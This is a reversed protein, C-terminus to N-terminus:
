RVRRMLFAAVFAFLIIPLSAGVIPPVQYVLSFPGFLQNLLYFGFGVVSGTVVRVGMSVSRLPGFVFPVALFIMVLTALPQLIRQWFALSFNASSNGNAKEYHIYRYLAPLTMTQTANKSVGLVKADIVVPWKLKKFKTKVVGKDTFSSEVGNYLWWQYGIRTAHNAEVIRKLRFKKDVDYQIVGYLKSSSVIDNLHIFSKQYRYWVGEKSAVTQGQTEASLKKIDALQQTKPAIVEGILTIIVILLLATLLVIKVIDFVSFGAARMVVLESNSALVGLGLLSGILGVMPFLSYLNTPLSLTVYQLAQLIGYDGKGIDGIEAVISIFFEMGIIILMVILILKIITIGIYRDLIKM